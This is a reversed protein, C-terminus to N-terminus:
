VRAQGPPSITRRSLPLLSRTPLCSPVSGAKYVSKTSARRRSGVTHVSRPISHNYISRFWNLLALKIAKSECWLLLRSGRSERCGLAQCSMPSFENQEVSRQLPSHPVASRQINLNRSSPHKPLLSTPNGETGFPLNPLQQTSTAPSFFM